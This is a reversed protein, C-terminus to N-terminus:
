SSSALKAKFPRASQYSTTGGAFTARLSRAVTEVTSNRPILTSASDTAKSSAQNQRKHTRERAREDKSVVDMIGGFVPDNKAAARIVSRVDEINAVRGKKRIEQVRKQWRSKVFGPVRGLIKLLRDENNIQGLRGTVRLTMECSELDHALDQLAGRDAARIVPGESVRRIWANTVKYKDGFREELLKRVKTYGEDANMMGCSMILERAKGSCHQILLQLRESNDKTYKHVNNEFSTIFLFYNLPNDDFQVSEAKPLRQSFLQREMNEQVKKITQMLFINKKVRNTDSGEPASPTPGFGEKYGRQGVTVATDQNFTRLGQSSAFEPQEVKVKVEERPVKRDGTFEEFVREQALAKAIQTELKLRVEEHELQLKNQAIRQQERLLAAEFVLAAKMAAVRLREDAVSTM